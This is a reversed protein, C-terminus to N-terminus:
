SQECGSVVAGRRPERAAGNGYCLRDRGIGDLEGRLPMSRGACMSCNM